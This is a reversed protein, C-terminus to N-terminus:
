RSTLLFRATLGTGEPGIPCAERPERPETEHAELFRLSPDNPTPVQPGPAYAVILSDKNLAPDRRCYVKGWSFERQGGLDQCIVNEHFARRELDNPTDTQYFPHSHALFVLQVRCEVDTTAKVEFRGHDSEHAGLDYSRWGPVMFDESDHSFEAQLRAHGQIQLGDRFALEGTIRFIM